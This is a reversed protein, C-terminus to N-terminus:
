VSSYCRGWPLLSESSRWAEGRLVFV